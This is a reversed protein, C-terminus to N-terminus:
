VDYRTRLEIYNLKLRKAGPTFRNRLNVQMRIGHVELQGVAVRQYPKEPCEPEWSDVNLDVPQGGPQMLVWTEFHKSAIFFEHCCVIQRCKGPLWPSREQVLCARLTRVHAHPGGLCRCNGPARHGFAGVRGIQFNGLRRLTEVSEFSPRVIRLGLVLRPGLFLACSDRPGWGQCASGGPRGPASWVCNRIFSVLLTPRSMHQWCSTFQSWGPIRSAIPSLGTKVRHTLPCFRGVIGSGQAWM